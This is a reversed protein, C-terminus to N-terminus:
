INGGENAAESTTESPTYYLEIEVNGNATGSIKDGSQIIAFEDASVPNNNIMISSLTYSTGNADFTNIGSFEYTTGAPCIQSSVGGLAYTGSENTSYHGISVVCDSVLSGTITFDYYIDIPNNEVDERSRMTDDMQINPNVNGAFVDSENLLDCINAADYYSFTCGTVTLTTGDLIYSNVYADSPISVGLIDIIETKAPLTEDVMRRLETLTYYYQTKENVDQQLSRAQLELGAYEESALRANLDDIDKQVGINRFIDYGLIALCLGIAIVGVFVVVALVQTQKRASATFEGFFNIDNKSYGKKSGFLTM